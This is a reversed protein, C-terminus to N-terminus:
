GRRRSAALVSLPLSVLLAAPLVWWSPVTTRSVGVTVALAAALGLAVRWDDGIVLGYLFAGLSRLRRGM